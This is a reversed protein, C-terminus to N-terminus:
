VNRVKRIHDKKIQEFRAKAEKQRVRCQIVVASDYRKKDIKMQRFLRIALYRRICAQIKAAKEFKEVM